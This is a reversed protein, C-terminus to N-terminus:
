PSSRPGINYFKKCKYSIIKKLYALTNTGPLSQWGQRSNAPLALLSCTFPAESPYARSKGGCMLSPQLLKGSVFVTAKYYFKYIVYTFLKIVSPWHAQIM